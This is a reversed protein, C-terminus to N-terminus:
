RAPEVDFRGPYYWAQVAIPGIAAVISFLKFNMIAADGIRRWSLLPRCM